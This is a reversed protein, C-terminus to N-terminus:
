NKNYKRIFWWAHKQKWRCSNGICLVNIWTGRHAEILSQWMRILEWSLSFQLVPKATKRWMDACRKRQHDYVNRLLVRYSHLVNERPTCRELNEVTNDYWNGNKYNVQIKSSTNSIFEQAVLRHILYMKEKSNKTLCIRFYGIWGNIKKLILVRSKWQYMLSRVNWLSSVEYLWEYGTVQKRM